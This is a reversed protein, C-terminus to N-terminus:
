LSRASQTRQTEDLVYNLIYYSEELGARDDLLINYYPKRFGPFDPNENVYTIKIGHHRCFSKAFTLEDGERCSFLIIKHGLDSAKKLLSIVESYNGGNNHCDFITNDFDAAIYLTGYKELEEKLRDCCYHKNFPHNFSSHHTSDNGLM